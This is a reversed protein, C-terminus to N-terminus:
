PLVSRKLASGRGQTSVCPNPSSSLAGSCVAKHGIPMSSSPRPTRYVQAGRAEGQSRDLPPCAGPPSGPPDWPKSVLRSNAETSNWQAVPCAWESFLASGSGPSPVALCRYRQTSRRWESFLPSPRGLLHGPQWGVVLKKVAVVDFYAVQAPIVAPAPVLSTRLNISMANNPDEDMGGTGITSVLLLYWTEDSGWWACRYQAIQAGAAL